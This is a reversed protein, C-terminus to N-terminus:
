EVDVRLAELEAELSERELKIAELYDRVLEQVVEAFSAADFESNDCEVRIKEPDISERNRTITSVLFKVDPSDSALEVECGEVLIVKIKDTAM